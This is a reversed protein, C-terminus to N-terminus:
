MPRNVVGSGMKFITLLYFLVVLFVLGVAIAVSRAKQRSKQDAQPTLQAPLVPKEMSMVLSSEYCVQV